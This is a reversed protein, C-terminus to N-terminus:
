GFNARTTEGLTSSTGIVWFTDFAETSSLLYEVRHRLGLEIDHAIREVFFDQDFGLGINDVARVTIRDSVEREIAEDLHDSSINALYGIRVVPQPDKYLLIQEDAWDQATGTDPVWRARDGRDFSRFDYLGQSTSDEAQITVPDLAHVATGRVQFFNLYVTDSIHDNTVTIKIADAFKEVDISLDATRDTGGDDDQTNATYDTTAVPTTWADVAVAAVDAAPTPYYAWFTLSESPALSPSGASTTCEPHTWLVALSQVQYLQVRTRIDNRVSALPEELEITEYGLESGSPNDSLTVQSTTARSDAQRAGDKEFVIDGDHSERLFGNESAELERMLNLAVRKDTTWFRNVTITGTDLDRSGAPWGAADLIAGILADTTQSTQMAIQVKTDALASLPGYATLVARKTNPFEVSPKVTDLVGQWITKSSPSTARLRVLRGPLIDGFIPSTANFANYKDEDNRLTARLVGAQAMGALVDASQRGTTFQVRLLDSTLTEDGGEFSGDNDWDVDLVYTATAM